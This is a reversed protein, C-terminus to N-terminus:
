GNTIPQFGFTKSVQEVSTEQLQALQGIALIRQTHLREIKHIFTAM